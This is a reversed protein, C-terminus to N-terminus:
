DGNRRIAQLALALTDVARLAFLTRHIGLLALLAGLAFSGPGQFWSQVRSAHRGPRDHVIEIHQQKYRPRFGSPLNHSEPSNAPRFHLPVIHMSRRDIFSGM